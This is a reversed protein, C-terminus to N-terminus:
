KNSKSECNIGKPKPGKRSSPNRMHQYKLLFQTCPFEATIKSWSGINGTETGGYQVQSKYSLDSKVRVDRYWRLYADSKDFLKEVTVGALNCSQFFKV